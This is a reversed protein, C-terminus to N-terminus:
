KVPVAKTGTKKSPPKKGYLEESIIGTLSTEAGCDELVPTLVDGVFKTFPGITPDRPVAPGKPADNWLQLLARVAAREADRKANRPPGSPDLRGKAAEIWKDLVKLASSVGQVTLGAAKVQYRVPEEDIVIAVVPSRDAENELLRRTDADLTLLATITAGTAEALPNLAALKEGSTPRSRYHISVRLFGAINRLEGILKKRSGEDPTKLHTTIVAILHDDSYLDGTQFGDVGVPQWDQKKPRPM